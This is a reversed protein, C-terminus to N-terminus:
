INERKLFCQFLFLFNLAQKGGVGRPFRKTEVGGESEPSLPGSQPQSSSHSLTPLGGTWVTQACVDIIKKPWSQPSASLALTPSSLTKAGCLRCPYQRCCGVYWIGRSLRLSDDRGMVGKLHM